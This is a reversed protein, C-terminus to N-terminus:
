STYKIYFDNQNFSFTPDLPKLLSVLSVSYRSIFSIEHNIYNIAIVLCTNANSKIPFDFQCVCLMRNSKIPFDFQFVCLKLPVTLRLLKM